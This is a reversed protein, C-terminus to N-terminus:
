VPEIVEIPCAPGPTRALRDDVTLLTADMSEALAVYMADAVPLNDRLQFARQLLPQHPLREGAWDRLADVAIAAATADLRGNLHYRRIVGLVEVDILHPAVLDTDAAFRRRIVPEAPTSTVVEFLCGADVVLM